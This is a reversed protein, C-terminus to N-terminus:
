IKVKFSHKRFIVKNVEGTKENFVAKFELTKSLKNYDGLFFRQEKDFTGNLEKFDNIVNQIEKLEEYSFSGVFTFIM